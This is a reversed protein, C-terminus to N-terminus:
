RRAMKHGGGNMLLGQDKAALVAAGVDVGPVSRLSLRRLRATSRLSRPPGTSATRSGQPWLALSAPIGAKAGHRQPPGRTDRDRGKSWRRSLVAAEIAQREQNFRDLAAAAGQAFVADESALLQAGLGAQGVRGGANM